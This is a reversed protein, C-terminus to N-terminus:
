WGRSQDLHRIGQGQFPGLPQYEWAQIDRASWDNLLVFGFIMADAQEVTVPSGMANPLGVVTGMELEIDLRRSPGFIPAEAGHPKMQGLPRHVDTGSVVVTSARGNYAIPIHLWNPPLANEPGRFMVGVNYAHQRGSYFDTYGAVEFPLHLTVESMPALAAGSLDPDDKLAPDGGDSLLDTLRSRVTDWAPHGLAMFANLVPSAFVRTTAGADLLGAAELASLDLVQDGIAVGCRPAEGQRSFAGYPLNQLPFDCGKANASKVWSTM